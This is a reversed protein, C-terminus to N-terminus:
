ALVLMICDDDSRKDYGNYMIYRRIVGIKEHYDRGNRCTIMTYGLKVWIFAAISINSNCSKM